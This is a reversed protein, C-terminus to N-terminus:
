SNKLRIENVVEVEAKELLSYRNITKNYVDEECDIYEITLAISYSVKDEIISEKDRSLAHIVIYPEALDNYKIKGSTRKIVTDWKFDNRLEQETM